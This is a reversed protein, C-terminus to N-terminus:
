SCFSSLGCCFLILVDLDFATANCSITTLRVSAFALCTVHASWCTATKVSWELWGNLSLSYFLVILLVMTVHPLHFPHCVWAQRRFCFDFFMSECMKRIAIPTLLAHLSPSNLPPVKARFTVRIRHCFDVDIIAERTSSSLLWCVHFFSCRLRCSSSCHHHHLVPIALHHHRCHHRFLARFVFKCRPTCSCKARFDSIRPNRNNYFGILLWRDFCHHLLNSTPSCRCLRNNLLTWHSGAM